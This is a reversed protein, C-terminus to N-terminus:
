KGEHRCRRRFAVADHARRPDPVRAERIRKHASFCVRVCVSLMCSADGAERRDEM